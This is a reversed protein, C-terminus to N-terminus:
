RHTHLLSYTTGQGSAYVEFVLDGARTFIPNFFPDHKEADLDFWKYMYTETFLSKMAEEADKALDGIRDELQVKADYPDKADEGWTGIPLYTKPDTKVSVEIGSSASYNITIM